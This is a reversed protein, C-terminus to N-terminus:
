DLVFDSVWLHALIGQLWYRLDIMFRAGALYRFVFSLLSLHYIDTLPAHYVVGSAPLGGELYM